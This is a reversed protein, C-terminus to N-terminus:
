TVDLAHELAAPVLRLEETTVILPPAIGLSTAMPRVIVGAERASRALRLPLDTRRALLEADLEVAALAGVSRVEAVAPHDRLPALMADLEREIALGRDLLGEREIIDLNTLAARCCTAHGSYTNGHRFVPGTDGALYPAWIRESALVAGLPLYGSTLGKALVILDPRLGWREVGFWTGLRGFGVIVADAVFLIGRRQCLDAAAELYGPAPPHVGGSGIVPECVFAAVRDPGLADFTRALDDVSDREVQGTAADLPGWATRNAAIGGVSTGLGHVGHYGGKRSVVHVRDTQGRLQWHQRALKVATDVADSGGSQLLVRVDPTPALEALRAALEVAVDNAYDGFAPYTDLTRLQDAVAAAMESRGHGINCYWLGGVADLHRRGATDWVWCGEARAIVSRDDAPTRMDSFARWLYDDGM